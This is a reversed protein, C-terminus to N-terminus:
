SLCVGDVGCPQQAVSFPSLRQCLHKTLMSHSAWSPPRSGTKRVARPLDSQGHSPELARQGCLHSHSWLAM